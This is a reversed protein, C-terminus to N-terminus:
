QLEVRMDVEALYSIMNKVTSPYFIKGRYSKIGQDNLERAIKTYGKGMEWHHKVQKFTEEAFDVADQKNRSSLVEAGYRGLQVGRDKAIALGAKTRESIKRGEEEALAAYIHLQFATAEPLEVVKFGVKKDIFQAIFSVKRSFRDLKHVVITAGQKKALKIAGELGAREFRKGTGIDTFEEILLGGEEECFKRVQRQQDELGYGTAGQRKTSVRYYGIFKSM